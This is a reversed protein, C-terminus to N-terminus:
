KGKECEYFYEDQIARMLTKLWKRHGASPTLYIAAILDGDKAHIIEDANRHHTQFLYEFEHKMENETMGKKKSINVLRPWGQKM